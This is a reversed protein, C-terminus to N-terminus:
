MTEPAWILIYLQYRKYEFVRIFYDSVKFRIFFYVESLYERTIMRSNVSDMRIVLLKMKRSTIQSYPLLERACTCGFVYKEENNKKIVFAIFYWFICENGYDLTQKFLSTRCVNICNAWVRFLRTKIHYFSLSARRQM